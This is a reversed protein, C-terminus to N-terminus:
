FSIWKRKLENIRKKKASLRISISSSTFFSHKNELYNIQFQLWEDETFLTENLALEERLMGAITYYEARGFYDHDADSMIKELLTVIQTSTQTSAIIQCITSIQEDDYGFKPLNEKAM